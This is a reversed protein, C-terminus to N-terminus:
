KMVPNRGELSAQRSGSSWKVIKAQCRVISGKKFSEILENEVAPFMIEASFPGGNVVGQISCGRRYAESALLTRRIEEVKIVCTAETCQGMITAVESSLRSKELQEIMLVTPDASMSQIEEIVNLHPASDIELPPQLGDASMNGNSNLANGTDAEQEAVRREAEQEAARRETEAREAARIKAEALAEAMEQESETITKAREDESSQENLLDQELDAFEDEAINADVEFGISELFAWWEPVSLQGDGNSDMANLVHNIVWEPPEANSLERILDTTEQTSVFGDKNSDLKQTLQASTFGSEKLWVGFREAMQAAIPDNGIKSKAKAQVSDVRGRVQEAVVQTANSGVKEKVSLAWKQVSDQQSLIEIVTERPLHSPPSDGTFHVAVAALEENDLVALNIGKNMLKEEINKFAM